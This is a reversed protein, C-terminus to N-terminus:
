SGVSLSDSYCPPNDSARKLSEWVAWDWVEGARRRPVCGTGGLRGRSFGIWVRPGPGTIYSHNFINKVLSKLCLNVHCM